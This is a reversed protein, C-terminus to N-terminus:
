SSVQLLCFLRMELRPALHGEFLPRHVFHQPSFSSKASFLYDRLLSIPNISQDVCRKASYSAHGIACGTVLGCATAGM